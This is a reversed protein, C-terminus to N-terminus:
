EVEERTTSDISSELTFPVFTVYNGSGQMPRAADVRGWSALRDALALAPAEPDYITGGNGGWVVSKLQGVLRSRAIGVGKRQAPAPFVMTAMWNTTATSLQGVKPEEGASLLTLYLSRPIAGGQQLTAEVDETELDTIEGTFYGALVADGRFRALLTAQLREEVTAPLGLAVIEPDAPMTDPLPM